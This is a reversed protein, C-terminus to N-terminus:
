FTEFFILKAIIYSFFVRVKTVCTRNKKVKLDINLFILCLKKCLSCHEAFSERNAFLKRITQSYIRWSYIRQYKAWSYVGIGIRWLKMEHINNRDTFITIQHINNRNVFIIWLIWSYRLRINFIYLSYAYIESHSQKGLLNKM